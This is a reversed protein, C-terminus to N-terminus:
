IMRRWLSLRSRLSDSMLVETRLVENANLSEASIVVIHARSKAMAQVQARRWDDGIMCDLTAVWPKIAGSALEHRIRTAFPGSAGPYSIYANNHKRRKGQIRDEIAQFLRELVDERTLPLSVASLKQLRAAFLTSLHKTEEREDLLNWCEELMVPLIPRESARALFLEMRCMESAVYNASVFPVFARVRRPATLLQRRWDGGGKIQERDLWVPLKRERFADVVPAVKDWDKRSYSIMVSM